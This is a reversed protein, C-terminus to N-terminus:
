SNPHITAAAAAAAADHLDSSRSHAEVPGFDVGARCPQLQPAVWGWRQAQMGATAQRDISLCM